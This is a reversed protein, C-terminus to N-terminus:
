KKTVEESSHLTSQHHFTFPLNSVLHTKAKHGFLYNKKSKVVIHNFPWKKLFGDESGAIIWNGQIKPLIDLLEEYVQKAPKPNATLPNIDYVEDYWVPDLFFFSDKSDWKKICETFDEQTIIDNKFHKHLYKIAYDSLDNLIKKDSKVLKSIRGLGAFPEVFIKCKPIYECIERKTHQLGPYGKFATPNQRIHQGVRLKKQKLKEDVKIGHLEMM